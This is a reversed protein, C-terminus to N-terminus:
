NGLFPLQLYSEIIEDTYSDYRGQIVIDVKQDTM